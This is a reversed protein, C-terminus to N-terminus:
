ETNVYLGYRYFEDDYWLQKGNEATDVTGLGLFDLLRDFAGSIPSEESYTGKAVAQELIEQPEAPLEGPSLDADIRSGFVVERFESQSSAVEVALATHATETLQETTVNIRYAWAGSDTM